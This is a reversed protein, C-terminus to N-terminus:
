RRAKKRKRKEKEELEKLKRLAARKVLEKLVELNEPPLPEVFAVEIKPPEKWKPWIIDLITGIMDRYPKEKEIPPNMIRWITEVAIEEDSGAISEKRAYEKLTLGKKKTMDTVISSVIQGMEIETAGTEQRLAREVWDLVHGLQESSLRSVLEEVTFVSITL